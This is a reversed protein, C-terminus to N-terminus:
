NSGNDAVIMGYTKMACLLALTQPSFEAPDHREGEAVGHRTIPAGSEHRERRQKQGAAPATAIRRRRGV